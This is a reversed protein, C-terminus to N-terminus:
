LCGREQRVVKVTRLVDAGSPKADKMEFELELAVERPACVLAYSVEWGLSVFEPSQGWSRIGEVLLRNEIEERKMGPTFERSYKWRAYQLGLERYAWWGFMLSVLGAVSIILFTRLRRVGEITSAM